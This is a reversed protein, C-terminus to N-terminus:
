FGRVYNGPAGFSRMLTCLEKFTIQEKPRLTWHIRTDRTLCLQAPPFTAAPLLWPKAMNSSVSFHSPGGSQADIVVQEALGAIAELESCTSQPPILKVVSSPTTSYSVDEEFLGSPKTWNLRIKDLGPGSANGGRFLDPKECGSTATICCAPPTANASVAAFALPFALARIGYRLMMQQILLRTTTLVVAAGLGASGAILAAIAALIALTVIIEYLAQVKPQKKRECACDGLAGGNLGGSLLYAG